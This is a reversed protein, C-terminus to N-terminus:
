KCICAIPISLTIRGNNLHLTTFPYRATKHPLQSNTRAHNLTHTLSQKISNTLYHILYRNPLFIFYSLVTPTIHTITYNPLNYLSAITPNPTLYTPASPQIGAPHHSAPANANIKKLKNTKFAKRNHNQRTEYAYTKLTVGSEYIYIGGGGWCLTSYPM